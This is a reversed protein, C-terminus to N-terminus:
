NNFIDQYIGIQKNIENRLSIREITSLKRISRKLDNRISFIIPKLTVLRDKSLDIGKLYRLQDIFEFYENGYVKIIGLRYNSEDGSKHSNSEFSQIHINHLNLSSSRNAGVSVFHGGNSKGIFRGTAICPQGYDILRAIENILPQIVTSRYGDSSMNEVKMKAKRKQWSKEEQIKTYSIICKPNECCPQLTSFRPIFKTKCIKCKAM